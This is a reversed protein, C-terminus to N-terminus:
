KIIRSPTIIADVKMDYENTEIYPVIQFDFALAVKLFNNSSHDALYKDYYGGGYGIRNFNEDFALGPMLILANKDDAIDNSIPELIGFKTIALDDFSKIYCFDMLPKKYTKPVAVKKGAKWAHEIIPNTLIENNFSIYSYLVESNKYFDQSVFKQTLLESYEKIQDHTLLNKQKNINDRIEQKSM